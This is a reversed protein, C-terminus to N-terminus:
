MPLLVAFKEICSHPAASFWRRQVSAARCMTTGSVADREVGLSWPTTPECDSATIIEARSPSSTPMRRLTTASIKTSWRLHGRHRRSPARRQPLDRVHRSSTLMRRLTTASVAWGEVGLSWPATPDSDSATIDGMCAIAVINADTPADNRQGNTTGGGWTVVTGDTRLGVSHYYGCADAVFIADTPTDDTEGAGGWTVVTARPGSTALRRFAAANGKDLAAIRCLADVAGPAFSIHATSTERASASSPAAPTTDILRYTKTVVSLSGTPLQEAQAVRPSTLALRPTWEPCFTTGHRGACPLPGRSTSALGM